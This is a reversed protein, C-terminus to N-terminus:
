HASVVEIRLMGSQPLYGSVTAGSLDADRQLAVSFRHAARADGVFVLPEGELPKLGAENAVVALRASDAGLTAPVQLQVPKLDAHAGIGAAEVNYGDVGHGDSNAPGQAAFGIGIALAAAAAFAAGMELPRGRLSAWWGGGSTLAGPAVLPMAAVDVDGGAEARREAALAARVRATIDDPPTPQPLQRLNWLTQKMAEYESALGSDARLMREVEGATAEDLNGEAYQDLLLRVDDASLPPMTILELRTM